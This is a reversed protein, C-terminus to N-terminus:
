IEEFYLPKWFHESTLIRHTSRELFMQERRNRESETEQIFVNKEKQSAVKFM